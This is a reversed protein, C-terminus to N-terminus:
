ESGAYIGRSLSTAVAKGGGVIALRAPSGADAPFRLRHDRRWVDVVAAYTTGAV